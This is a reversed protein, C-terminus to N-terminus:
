ACFAQLAEGDMPKAFFYGQMHTIGAALLAQKEGENEVGGASVEIGCQEAAQVLKALDDTSQTGWFAPALKAGQVGLDKLTRLDNSDIACNDAVVRFGKQGAAAVMASVAADQELLVASDLEVCVQAHDVDHWQLTDALTQAFDGMTAHRLSFNLSIPVNGAAGQTNQLYGCIEEAMYWDLGFITDTRDLAPVFLGAPIVTGDSMTYRVLAEAGVVRNDAANVIPQYYAVLEHEEVARAADEVILLDDEHMIQDADM